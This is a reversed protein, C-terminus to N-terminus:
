GGRALLAVLQALTLVTVHREGHHRGVIIVCGGRIEAIPANCCDCRIYQPETRAETVVTVCDM